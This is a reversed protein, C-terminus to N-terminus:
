IIVKFNLKIDLGTGLCVIWRKSFFNQVCTPKFKLSTRPQRARIEQLLHNKVIKKYQQGAEALHNCLIECFQIICVIM